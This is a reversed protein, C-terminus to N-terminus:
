TDESDPPTIAAFVAGIAKALVTRAESVDPILPKGNAGTAEVREPANLGFLKSRRESIKVAAEIARVHGSDIKPKLAVLYSDLRQLEQLQMAYVEESHREKAKEFHKKWVEFASEAAIGLADGIEKYTKGECRLRVIEASNNLAKPELM